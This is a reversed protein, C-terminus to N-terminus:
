KYNGILYFAAWYYPSSYDPNKQLEVQALKLAQAKDLSKLNKYFAEMLIATAKDNVNWLTALVGGAGAYLFACNMSQVEDGGGVKGVGSQCASLVVLRPNMNLSFIEFTELNGDNKEDGALLLASKLPDNIDYIGHAAIHIVATDTIDKEKFVSETADKGTLVTSKPFHASAARVEDEAFKLSYGAEQRAPNGIALIRETDSTVEKDLLFLSSANPLINIAFDQVMFRGKSARLSSFPLYHLAKSPVIFLREKKSLEKAVPAILLTHLEEGLTPIHAEERAAIAKRYKAVLDALEDVGADVAVATVNEHKVVWIITRKEGLFYSLLATEKELRGALKKLPITVVSTTAAFELSRDKIAELIDRRKSVLEEYEKFIARRKSGVTANFKRIVAEMERQIEKEKEVLAPDVAKKAKLSRGALADLFARAKSRELYDFSEEVNNMEFLLEITESYVDQVSAAFMKKLTDERLHTRTLELAEVAKILYARAEAYKKIKVLAGGVEYCMRWLIETAGFEDAKELFLAYEKLKASDIKIDPSQLEVKFTLVRNFLLGFYRDGYEFTKKGDEFYKWAKDFEGLGGYAAAKITQCFGINDYMDPGLKFFKRYLSHRAVKLLRNILNDALKLQNLAEGYKGAYYNMAGLNYRAHIIANAKRHMTSLITSNPRNDFYIDFKYDKLTKLAYEYHEKAKESDGSYMYVDGLDVDIEAADGNLRVGLPYAERFLRMAEGYEGLERKLWGMRELCLLTGMEIKEEEYSIRAKEYLDLAKSYDGKSVFDEAESAYKNLFIDYQSTTRGPMNDIAYSHSLLFLHLATVVLLIRGCNSKMM